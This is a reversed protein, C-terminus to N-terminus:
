YQQQAETEDDYDRSTITLMINNHQQPLAILLIHIWYSLSPENEHPPPRQHYKPTM